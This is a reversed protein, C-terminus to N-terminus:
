KKLKLMKAIEAHPLNDFSYFALTKLPTHITRKYFPWKSEAIKQLYSPIDEGKTEDLVQPKLLRYFDDIPMVFSNAIDIVYARNYSINYSHLWYTDSFSTPCIATLAYDYPNLLAHEYSVFHCNYDFNEYSKEDYGSTPVYGTEKNKNKGINKIINIEETYMASIPIFNFDGITTSLTYMHNKPDCSLDNIWPCHQWFTFASEPNQSNSLATICDIIETEKLYHHKTLIEYFKNTLSIPIYPNNLFETRIATWHDETTKYLINALKMFLKFDTNRVYSLFEFSVNKAKERGLNLSITMNACLLESPYM